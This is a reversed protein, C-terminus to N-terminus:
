RGIRGLERVVAFTLKRPQEIEVAYIPLVLRMGEGEFPVLVALGCLEESRVEKQGLVVHVDLYGRHALLEHRLLVALNPKKSLVMWVDLALHEVLPVVEVEQDLVSEFFRVGIHVDGCWCSYRSRGFYNIEAL